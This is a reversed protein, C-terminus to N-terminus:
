FHWYFYSFQAGYMWVLWAAAAMFPGFKVATKRNAQNFLLLMIAWLGGSLSSLLLAMVAGQLGTYAGVLAALKIDGGGLGGRSVAAIILLIGAYLLSGSLASPIGVTFYSLLMGLIIGPYTIKDPILGTDLDIFAVSILLSTLLWGAGTWISMGWKLYVLGFTIATLFEVLPYRLSINNGCYRCRGKAQIYSILPVLDAWALKHGCIICRSGPRIISEGRPLRYIVVNLFSGILLSIALIFLYDLM